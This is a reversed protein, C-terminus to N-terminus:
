LLRICNPPLPKFGNGGSGVNSKFYEENVWQEEYIEMKFDFNEYTFTVYKIRVTIEVENGIKYSDLINGEFFLELYDAGEETDWSFIIKTTNYNSDFIIEDITDIIILTDKDNLSNYLLSYDDSLDMDLLIDNNHEQATMTLTKPKKIDSDKIDAGFEICGTFLFLSLLIIIIIILYKKIMKWGLIFFTNSLNKHIIM